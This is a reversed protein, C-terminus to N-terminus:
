KERKKIFQNALMTALGGVTLGGIFSGNLKEIFKTVDNPNMNGSMFSTLINQFEKFDGLISSHSSYNNYIDEVSVDAYYKAVCNRFAPLHNNYSAAQLRYLVDRIDEQTTYQLLNEYMLVNDIEAAVGVECCEVLSNPVEIKSAWDNIPIPVQYKQLLHILASYHRKEAEIINVFPAVAGFKQMVASYTEYAHFEDYVAIRLVQHLIPENYNPNVRLGTLLDEDFNSM